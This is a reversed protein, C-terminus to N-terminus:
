RFYLSFAILNQAAYYTVLCLTGLFPRKEKGFMRLGLATDSGLFLLAGPASLFFSAKGTRILVAAACSTMATLILLYFLMAARFRGKLTLRPLLILALLLAAACAAPFAILCTAPSVAAFAAIYFLHGFLFAGAGLLFRRDEPGYRELLVDGVAGALLGSAILARSLTVGGYLLLYGGLVTFALSALTKALLPPSLRCTIYLVALVASIFLLIGPILM